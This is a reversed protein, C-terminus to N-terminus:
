RRRRRSHVQVVQARESFCTLVPLGVAADDAIQPGSECILMCCACDPVTRQVTSCQEPSYLRCRRVLVRVYLKLFNYMSNFCHLVLALAPPVYVYSVTEDADECVEASKQLYRSGHLAIGRPIRTVKRHYLLPLSASVLYLPTFPMSSVPAVHNTWILSSQSLWVPRLPKDLALLREPLSNQCTSLLDSAWAAILPAVLSHETRSIWSPFHLSSDWPASPHPPQYEAADTCLEDNAVGVSPPLKWLPVSFDHADELTEAPDSRLVDRHLCAGDPSESPTFSASDTLAAPSM